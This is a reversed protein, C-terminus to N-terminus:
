VYVFASVVVRLEITGGLSVHIVWSCDEDIPYPHPYNPSSLYGASGELAYRYQPHVFRTKADSFVPFFSYSIGSIKNVVLM